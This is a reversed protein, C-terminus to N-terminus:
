PAGKGLAARVQEFFRAKPVPGFRRAQEARGDQGVLTLDPMERVVAANAGAGVVTFRGQSFGEVSFRPRAGPLKRLFLVVEEGVGIEPAGWAKQTLEGVTGGPERVEILEGPATGKLQELVRVRTTTQILKGGSVWESSRDVARGHVVLDAGRALAELSLARVSTAHAPSAIISAALLFTAALLHSRM